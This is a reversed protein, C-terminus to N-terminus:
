AQNDQSSPNFKEDPTENSASACLSLTVQPSPMLLNSATMTDVMTSFFDVRSPGGTVADIAFQRADAVSNQVAASHIAIPLFQWFHRQYTTASELVDQQLMAAMHQNRATLGDNVQRNSTEEYNGASGAAKNIQNIAQNVADEISMGNTALPYAIRIVNAFREDIESSNVNVGLLSLYPDLQRITSLGLENKLESKKVSM